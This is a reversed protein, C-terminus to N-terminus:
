RIIGKITKNKKYGRDYISLFPPMLRLLPHITPSITLRIPVDLDAIHLVPIRM